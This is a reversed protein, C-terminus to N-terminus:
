CRRAATVLDGAADTMGDTTPVLLASRLLSGWLRAWAGSEKTRPDVNLQVRLNGHPNWGVVVAHDLDPVWDWERRRLEVLVEAARHADRFAVVIIASM